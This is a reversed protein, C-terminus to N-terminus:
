SLEPMKSDNITLLRMPVFGTQENAANYMFIPSDSKFRKQDPAFYLRDNKKFSLEKEKRAIYDTTAKCSVCKELEEKSRWDKHIDCIGKNYTWKAGVVYFLISLIKLINSKRMNLGFLKSLYLLFPQIQNMIFKINSSHQRIIDEIYHVLRSFSELSTLMVRIDSLLSCISLSRGMTRDSLYNAM